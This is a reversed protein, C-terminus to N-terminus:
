KDIGSLLELNAREYENFVADDFEEATCKPEYWACGMFYQNLDENRFIYGHRAYIENKALQIIVAPADAFDAATYYKMDTFYLPDTRNAIDRVERVNEWYDSVVDYQSYARYYESREMVRRELEEGSMDGYFQEYFREWMQEYTLTDGAGAAAATGADTEMGDSVETEASQVMQEQGNETHEPNEVSETEMSQSEQVAEEQVSEPSQVSEAEKATQAGCASLTLIGAVAVVAM